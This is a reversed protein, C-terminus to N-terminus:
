LGLKTKVEKKYMDALQAKTCLKAADDDNEELQFKLIKMGIDHNIRPDFSVFYVTKAGSVLANSICQWYYNKPLDHREDILCYSLHIGTNFPCKIEVVCTGDVSLGDPSGGWFDCGPHKIFPPVILKIGTRKEFYYRATAEHEKGWRMADTEIEPYYAGIEEAICEMVYTKAGESIQESKNKPDSMLRHIESSTFMGRREHQWLISGQANIM